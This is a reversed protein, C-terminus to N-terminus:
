RAFYGANICQLVRTWSRRMAMSSCCTSSALYGKDLRVSRAGMRDGRCSPPLSAAREEYQMERPEFAPGLEGDESRDFAWLVILKTAKM